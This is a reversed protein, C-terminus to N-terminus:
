YFLVFVIFIDLDMENYLDGPNHPLLWSPPSQYQGCAFHQNTEQNLGSFVKQAPSPITCSLAYGSSDCGLADAARQVKQGWLLSGPRCLNAAFAPACSMWLQARTSVRHQTRKQGESIFGVEYKRPCKITKLQYM